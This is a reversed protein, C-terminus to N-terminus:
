LKEHFDDFKEKRIKEPLCSDLMALQREPELLELQSFQSQIRVLGDVIEAFASLGINVGDIKVKNRGNESVERYIKKDESSFIGEVKGVKEGALIFKAGGRIGTLLEISRIISSKGAGSEGTIVNFGPKFTLEAERIGGINKISLNNIM